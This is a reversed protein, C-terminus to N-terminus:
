CKIQRARDRSSTFSSTFSPGSLVGSFMCGLVRVQKIMNDYILGESLLDLGFVQRNEMISITEM